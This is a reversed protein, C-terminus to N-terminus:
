KWLDTDPVRSAISSRRGSEVVTQLPVADPEVRRIHGRAYLEALLMLQELKGALADLIEGLSRVGDVVLSLREFDAFDAGRPMEVRTLKAAIVLLTDPDHPLSAIVRREENGRRTAEALLEQAGAFLRHSHELTRRKFRFQGTRWAVLACFAQEPTRDGYVVDIPRGDSVYVVGTKGDQELVLTGNRRTSELLRLLNAVGIEEIEGTMTPRKRFRRLIRAILVRMEKPRFPKTVFFEVGREFAAAQESADSHSTLCMFPIAESGPDHQLSEYLQSGDMKPMVLDSIILSPTRQRVKELADEGDVATVIRCQLPALTTALLNLLDADDDVLLVTMDSFEEITPVPKAAVEMRWTGKAGQTWVEDRLQVLESLDRRLIHDREGLPPLTKYFGVAVERQNNALYYEIIERATAYVQDFDKLDIHILISRRLIQVRREPTSMSDAQRYFALAAKLQGQNRALDALTMLTTIVDEQREAIQYLDVLKRLPVQDQPNAAAQAECEAIESLLKKQELFQGFRGKLKGFADM